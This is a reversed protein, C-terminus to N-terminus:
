WIFFLEFVNTGGLSFFFSLFFSKFPKKKSSIEANATKVKGPFPFLVRRNKYNKTCSSFCGSEQTQPQM